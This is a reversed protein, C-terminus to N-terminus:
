IRRIFMQTNRHHSYAIKIDGQKKYSKGDTSTSVEVAKPFYIVYNQYELTGVSVKKVLQEDELDIVVEM